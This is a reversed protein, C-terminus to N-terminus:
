HAKNENLELIVIFFTYLFNKKLANLRSFVGCSTFDGQSSTKLRNRTMPKKNYVRFVDSFKQNESIKFSYLLFSIAHCPKIQM